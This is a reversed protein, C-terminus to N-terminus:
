TRMRNISLLFFSTFKVDKKRFSIKVDLYKDLKRLSQDRTFLFYKLKHSILLIREKKDNLIIRYELLM